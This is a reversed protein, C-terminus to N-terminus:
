KNLKENMVKVKDKFDDLSIKDVKKNVRDGVVKFVKESLLEEYVKNIQNRDQMMRQVTSNIYEEGMGYQGFYQRVQTAINQQIEEPKVEIEETKAIEGRILTWKLNKVFDPFEKELEEETLKENTAKLWRKLFPEPLDMKNHEILGEMIDRYMYSDAQTAYYKGIEEKIMTRAEDESKVKDPGFYGDFFAQDMDAPKMRLVKEITGRFDKGVEKEEDDGLNLLYKKVHVEDKDKELNYIDFDFSGGKKMTLVKKMMSEEAILDTMLTFDTEHGGEKPLGNELEIAQIKLIDKEKIDEAVEEQSGQRKRAVEIEENVIEDTLTIDYHTYSDTSAAGKVTIDPSLGLDFDFTFSGLNNVDFDIMEQSESPLPDGLVNLDQDKIYDFLGKQLSENVADALIGKGFMKKIFGLPTKGKRFGKLSAKGKYNKLEDNFKKLYDEKEIEISLTTNLQDIDKKQIKM